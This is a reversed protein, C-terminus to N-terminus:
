GPAQTLFKQLREVPYGYGIAGFPIRNLRHQLQALDVSALGGDGEVHLGVHFRIDNMSGLVSRNSSRTCRIVRCAELMWEIQTQPFGDWLLAKFLRQGFVEDLHEFEPKKLGPVFVSYLTADHTFLVCKRRDIRLLNAHWSEGSTSPDVLRDPIEALLKQTCHILLPMTM